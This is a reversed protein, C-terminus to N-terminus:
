GLSKCLVVRIPCGRVGGGVNMLLLEGNASGLLTGGSVDSIPNVPGTFLIGGSTVTGTGSLAMTGGAFRLSQVSFSGPLTNSTVNVHGGSTFTNNVYDAAAFPVINGGVVKAWNGGTIVHAGVFGSAVPSSTLTTNAPLTLNLTAGISRTWSNPLTVAMTGTGTPALSISSAGTALTFGASGNFAQSSAANSKGILSWTGGALQLAQGPALMNTPSPLNAFNLVLSGGNVVTGGTYTQPVSGNFTFSDTVPQLVGANKVLAGSGSLVGTGIVNPVLSSNQTGDVYLRFAPGGGTLALSTSSLYLTGVYAETLFGFNLGNSVSLSVASRQLAYDSGFRV